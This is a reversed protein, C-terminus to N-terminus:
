PQRCIMVGHVKTTASRKYSKINPWGGWGWGFTQTHKMTPSRLLWHWSLKWCLSKALDGSAACCPCICSTPVEYGIITAMMLLIETV